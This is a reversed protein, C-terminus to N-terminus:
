ILPSSNPLTERVGAKNAACVVALNSASLPPLCVQTSYLGCVSDVQRHAVNKLSFGLINHSTIGISFYGYADVFATCWFTSSAHLLPVNGSESRVGAFLVFTRAKKKKKLFFDSHAYSHTRCLGMNWIPTTLSTWSVVIRTTIVYSRRTLICSIVCHSQGHQEDPESM